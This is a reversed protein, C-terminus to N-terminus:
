YEVLRKELLYEAIQVANTAAGKRLNESVIWINIANESSYDKRIRGIWVDDNNHATIPMPYQSTSPNDLVTIGQSQRLHRKVQELDISRDFEVTVSESHGGLVPVRVATATIKLNPLSMIKKTEEIIKQEEKTYDNELFVDIQPILNM